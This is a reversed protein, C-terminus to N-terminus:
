NVAYGGSFVLKGVRSRASDSDVLRLQPRGVAFGWGISCEIYLQSSRRLTADVTATTETSASVMHRGAPVDVFFVSNPQCIGTPRGDVLVAPQVGFGMIDTRFVYIRAVESSQPVSAAPAETLPTGSACGGLVIAAIALAAWRLFRM